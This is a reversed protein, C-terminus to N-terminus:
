QVLVQKRGATGAGGFPFRGSHRIEVKWSTAPRHSLRSNSYKGPATAFSPNCFNDNPEKFAFSSFAVM